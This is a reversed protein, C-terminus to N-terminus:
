VIFVSLLLHRSVTPGRNPVAVTRSWARTDARAPLLISQTGIAMADVAKLPKATPSADDPESSACCSDAEVQTVARQASGGKDEASHMPCAIGEVCCAMRAEPTSQWGPCRGVPGGALAAILAVAVTRAIVLVNRHDHTSVLRDFLRATSSSGRRATHTNAM